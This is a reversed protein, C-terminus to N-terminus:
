NEERSAPLKQYAAKISELFNFLRKRFHKPSIVQLDPGFKILNRLLEDNLQISLVLHTMGRGADTKHQIKEEGVLEKLRDLLNTNIRLALEEPEKHQINMIGQVDAFFTANLRYANETGAPDTVYAKITRGTDSFNFQEVVSKEYTASDISIPQPVTTEGEVTQGKHIVTLRYTEGVEVERHGKFYHFSLSDANGQQEEGRYQETNYPHIPENTTKQSLTDQQGKNSIVVLADALTQYSTNANNRAFYSRSKTLVVRPLSDHTILSHVVVQPEYEELDVTVNQECGWFSGTLTLICVLLILNRDM